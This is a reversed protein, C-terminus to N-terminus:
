LHRNWRYIGRRVGLRGIGRIRWLFMSSDSGATVTQAWQAVGSSDYKVLVINIGGTSTGTATVSNGFNYTGTGLIYGAAYVSGDSAVASVSTFFSDVSNISGATVTQAWQAVGFSDYKVLVINGGNSYTGTATVSNGFNYTGTRLIYGAAYVSGDSAM